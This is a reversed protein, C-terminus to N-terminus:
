QDNDQAQFLPHSISGKSTVLCCGFYMKQGVAHFITSKDFSGVQQVASQVLEEYGSDPLPWM